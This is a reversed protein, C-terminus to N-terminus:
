RAAKALRWALWALVGGKGLDLLVYAAHLRGFRAAIEAPLPRPLFDVSRGIELIPGHLGAQVAVIALAAAATSWPGSSWWVAAVTVAGLLAQAVLWRGFMARNIESAMHRFAQRRHEESVGALRDHLEPRAGPGLLTASTRFTISALFWSAVLLGLWLGTLLLSLSRTV